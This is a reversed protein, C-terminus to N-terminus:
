RFSVLNLGLTTVNETYDKSVIEKIGYNSDNKIASQELFVKVNKNFKYQYGLTLTTTTDARDTNNASVVDLYDRNVASGKLGIRNKDNIDYDAGLGYRISKNAYPLLGTGVPQDGALDQDAGVYAKLTWSGIYRSGLLRASTFPGTKYDFASTLSTRRSANVILGVSYTEKSYFYNLLAGAESWADSGNSKDQNYFIEGSYRSDGSRYYLPVYVTYMEDKFNGLDVANSHDYTLGIGYDVKNRFVYEGGFNIDYLYKSVTNTGEEYVNDTHDIRTNFWLDLHNALRPTEVAPVTPLPGEALMGDKCKKVLEKGAPTDTFVSEDMELMCLEYNEDAFADNANTLYEDKGSQIAKVLNQSPVYFYRAQTYRKATKVAADKQGLNLQCIAKYYFAAGVYYSHKKIVTDFYNIAAQYDGERYKTLGLNFYALNKKPAFALIAKYENEAETYQGNEFYKLGQELRQKYEDQQAKTLAKDGKFEELNTTPGAYSTKALTMVSIIALILTLARM